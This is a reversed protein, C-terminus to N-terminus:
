NDIAKRFTDFVYYVGHLQALQQLRLGVKYNIIDADTEGPQKNAMRSSIVTIVYQISKLFVNDFDSLTWPKPGSLQLDAVEAFKALYQVSDSLPKGKLLHAKYSKLVYRASQLHMVTNEGEHTNHPAYENLLQPLGSYYSTGHGGM